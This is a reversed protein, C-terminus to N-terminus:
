VRININMNKIPTSKEVGIKKSLSSEIGMCKKM